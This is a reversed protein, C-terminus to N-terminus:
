FHPQPAFEQVSGCFPTYTLRHPAPGRQVAEPPKTLLPSSPDPPLGASKREGPSSVRSLAPLIAITQTRGPLNVSRGMSRSDRPRDEGPGTHAPLPSISAERGPTNRRDDGNVRSPLSTSWLPPRRAHGASKANTASCASALRGAPCSAIITAPRFNTERHATSATAAPGSPAEPASGLRRM